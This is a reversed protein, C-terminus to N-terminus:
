ELATNGISVATPADNTFTDIIPSRRFTTKGTLELGILVQSTASDSPDVLRSIIGNAGVNVLTGVIGSLELCRLIRGLSSHLVPYQIHIVIQRNRNILLTVFEKAIRSNIGSQGLVNGVQKDPIRKNHKFARYLLNIVFRLSFM